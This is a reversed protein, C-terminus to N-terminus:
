KTLFNSVKNTSVTDTSVFPGLKIQRPKIQVKNPILKLTSNENENQRIKWLEPEINSRCYGTNQEIHKAANM